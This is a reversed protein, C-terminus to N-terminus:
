LSAKAFVPNVIFTCALLVKSATRHENACIQEVAFYCRERTDRAKRHSALANESGLAAWGM